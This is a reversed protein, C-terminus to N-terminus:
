VAVDAAIKGGHKYGVLQIDDMAFMDIAKVDPSLKVTPLEFTEQELYQKIQDMHNTYIHADGITYVLDGPVMNVVQGVMLTLLAYGAINFPTGLFVDNSRIYVQCSLRHKPTDLTNHLTTLLEDLVDPEKDFNKDILDAVQLASDPISGDENRRKTAYETREKVTLEEAYFQFLLHCPPLVQKGNLVNVDHSQGEVPLLEPNWGSVIIRRSTPNNKLTSIANSLQDVTMGSVTPWKRWMKGYVPGLDGTTWPINHEKCFAIADKYLAHLLQNYKVLHESFGDELAQEGFAGHILLELAGFQEGYKAAHTEIVKTKANDFKFAPKQSLNAMEISIESTRQLWLTEHEPNLRIRNILVLFDEPVVDWEDWITAGLANLEKNNSCGSVFWINEAKISKFSTFKGTILPFGEELNFRMQYGFVSYTGTGTRDGKFRGNTLIHQILDRYQRDANNLITM